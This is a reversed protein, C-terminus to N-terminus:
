IRLDDLLRAHLSAFSLNPCQADARGRRRTSSSVRAALSTRVAALGHAPRARPDSDGTAESVDSIGGSDYDILRAPVNAHPLDVM